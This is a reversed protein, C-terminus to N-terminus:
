ARQCAKRAVVYIQASYSDRNLKVALNYLQQYKPRPRRVHFARNLISPRFDCDVGIWNMLESLFMEPNPRYIMLFGLM